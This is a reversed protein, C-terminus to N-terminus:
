EEQELRSYFFGDLSDFDRQLEKSFYCEIDFKNLKIPLLADFNTAVVELSEEDFETVERDLYYRILMEKNKYRIAIARINPYIEGLFAIRLYDCLWEPWEEKSKM